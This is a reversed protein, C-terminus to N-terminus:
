VIRILKRDALMGLFELVDPAVQDRHDPFEAELESCLDAIRRPSAIKGWILTAITNFGHYLGTDLMMVITEGSLESAYADESRAIMSDM